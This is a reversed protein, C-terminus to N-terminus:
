HVRPKEEPDLEAYGAAHHAARIRRRIEDAGGAKWWKFREECRFPIVLEGCPGLHPRRLLELIEDRQARIAERQRSTLRSAPQVVIRNNCRRISLGSRRLSNLVDLANM